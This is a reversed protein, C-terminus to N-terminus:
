PETEYVEGTYAYVYLELWKSVTSMGPDSYYFGIIYYPQGDGYDMLGEVNPSLEIGDDEDLYTDYYEQAKAIAGEESLMADPDLGPLPESAPAPAPDGGSVAPSEVAGSELFWIMDTMSIGIQPGFYDYPDLRFVPDTSIETWSLAEYEGQTISRGDLTWSYTHPLDEYEVEGAETWDAEDTYRAQQAQVFGGDGLLYLTWERNATFTEGYQSFVVLGTKGDVQVLYANSNPGGGADYGWIEKMWQSAQGDKCTWVELKRSWDTTDPYSLLLEPMGNGDLDALLTRCHENYDSTFNEQSDCKERCDRVVKAYAARTQADLTFPQLRGGLTPLGSFTEDVIFCRPLDVEYEDSQDVWDLEYLFPTVAPLNAANGWQTIESQEKTAYSLSYSSVDASQGAEESASMDIDITEGHIEYRGSQYLRLYIPEYNGTMPNSAYLLSYEEIVGDDYFRYYAPVQGDEYFWHGTLWDMPILSDAQVPAPEAPTAPDKGSAAPSESASSGQESNPATGIEPDAPARLHLVAFVGGALLAIALVAILIWLWARSKKYETGGRVRKRTPYAGFTKDVAKLPEGCHGCHDITRPVSKGCRPCYM